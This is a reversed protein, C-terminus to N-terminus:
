QGDYGNSNMLAMVVVSMILQFAEQDDAIFLMRNKLTSGQSKQPLLVCVKECRASVGHAGKRSLLAM